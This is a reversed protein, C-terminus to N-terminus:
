NQSLPDVGKIVFGLINPSLNEGRYISYGVSEVQNRSGFIQRGRDPNTNSWNKPGVWSCRNNLVLGVNFVVKINSINSRALKLSM